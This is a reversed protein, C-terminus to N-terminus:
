VARSLGWGNARMQVEQQTFGLAGERQVDNSADFLPM